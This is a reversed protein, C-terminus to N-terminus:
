SFPVPPRHITVGALNSVKVELEGLALGRNGEREPGDTLLFHMVMALRLLTVPGDRLQAVLAGMGLARLRSGLTQEHGV